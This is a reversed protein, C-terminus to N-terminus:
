PCEWLPGNRGTTTAANLKEVIENRINEVLWDESVIYQLGAPWYDQALVVVRSEYEIERGGSKSKVPFYEVHRVTFVHSTFIGNMVVSSDLVGGACNDNRVKNFGCEVLSQNIRDLLNRDLTIDASIAVSYRCGVKTKVLLWITIVATILFIVLAICKQNASLPAFIM